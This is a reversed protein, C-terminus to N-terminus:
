LKCDVFHQLTRIRNLIQKILKWLKRGCTQPSFLFVWIRIDKKLGLYEQQKNTKKKNIKKNNKKDHEYHVNQKEFLSRRLRSHIYVAPITRNLRTHSLFNCKRSTLSFTKGSNLTIASTYFSITLSLILNMMCVNVHECKCLPTENNHKFMCDTWRFRLSIFFICLGNM